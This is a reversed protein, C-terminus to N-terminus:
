KTSLRADSLEEFYYWGAPIRPKSFTATLTLPLRCVLSANVIINPDFFIPNKM